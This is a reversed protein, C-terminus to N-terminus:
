SSRFRRPPPSDDLEFELVVAAGDERDRVAQRASALALDPDRFVGVIESDAGLALVAVHVRM